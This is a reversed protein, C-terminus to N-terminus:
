SMEKATDNTGDNQIEPDLEPGIGALSLFLQWVGLYELRAKYCVLAEAEAIVMADEIIKLKYVATVWSGFQETMGDMSVRDSTQGVHRDVWSGAHDEQGEETDALALAEISSTLTALTVVLARDPADIKGRFQELLAETLTPKECRGAERNEAMSAKVRNFIWTEMSSCTPCSPFTFEPAYKVEVEKCLEWVGQASAQECPERDYSPKEKICHGFVVCAVYRKIMFCM